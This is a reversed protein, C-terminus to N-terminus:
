GQGWLLLFQAAEQVLNWLMHPSVGLLVVLASLGLTPVVMWYSVRMGEHAGDHPKLIRGMLPVYYGLSLLSNLLLGGIVLWTIWGAGQLAAVLIQWKAVFGALPPIGALGALAVIFTGAAIPLRHAMGDLEEVRTADCYFHCVGKSLFALGKMAAHAVLLLLGAAIAEPLGYVLGVGWALLIYGVQAISSYGLLRKGYDQMLAMVNGVTMNLLAMGILLWGLQRAPWGVGLAVKVMVYVNAEIVIGSLMASVSSPARGHADPLWAHAPVLAGKVAYGALLLGMGVTPWAGQGRPLPLTLGNGARYIYGIGALILIAAMGGMIAYKFGAEVATETRRRFAVLVYAAASTLVTFLYLTFLEVAMLMGLVGSSLLLLLPYYNEYRRDLALYRGSYLAVALGLVLSVLALLLAAPDARLIAEGGVQGWSPYGEAPTRGVLQLVSLLSLAYALATLSALVGNCRTFVRAVLYVALVGLALPVFPTWVGLGSM